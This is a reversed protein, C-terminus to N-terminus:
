DNAYVFRTATRGWDEQLIGSTVPQWNLKGEGGAVFREKKNSLFQERDM